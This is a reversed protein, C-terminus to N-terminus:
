GWVFGRMGKRRGLFERGAGEVFSSHFRVYRSEWSDQKRVRIDEEFVWYRDFIGM